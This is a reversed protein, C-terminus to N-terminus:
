RRVPQLQSDTGLTQRGIPCGTGSSNDTMDKLGKCLFSTTTFVCGETETDLGSAVATWRERGNLFGCSSVPAGGGSSM